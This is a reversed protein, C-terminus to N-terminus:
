RSTKALTSSTQYMASRWIMRWHLSVRVRPAGVAPQGVRGVASGEEQACRKSSGNTRHVRVHLLGSLERRRFQLVMVDEKGRPFYRFYTPDFGPPGAIHDATTDDYGRAVFEKLAALEVGEMTAIGAVAAHSAGTHRTSPGRVAVRAPTQSRRWVSTHHTSTKGPELGFSGTLPVCLSVLLRQVRRAHIYTMM